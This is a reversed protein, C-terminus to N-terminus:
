KLYQAKQLIKMPGIHNRYMGNSTTSVYTTRSSPRVALKFWHVMLHLIKLFALSTSLTGLLRVSATGTRANWTTPRTSVVNTHFCNRVLTVLSPNKHPTSHTPLLSEMLTIFSIGETPKIDEQWHYSPRGAEVKDHQESPQGPQKQDSQSDNPFFILQSKQIDIRQCLHANSQFMLEQNLLTM